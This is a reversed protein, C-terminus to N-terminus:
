NPPPKARAKRARITVTVPYHKDCHKLMDRDVEELALGQLFCTATYVNGFAEVTLGQDDFSERFLLRASHATLSWCWGGGWEGADVSSVGPVTVLAVGGPKLARELQAVAARMDFILHLTQTLIICDFAAVPLVGDRSIDGLITAEPQEDVHLVDQQTIGSGFRRSYTAEGVELVRGRIDNAHSTLFSEIYFRDIPTGRHYGFHRNIPSSRAFDGFDISGVPRKGLIARGLAAKLPQPLNRSLWTRFRLQKAGKTSISKSVSSFCVKASPTPGASNTGPRHDIGAKSDLDSAYSTRSMM